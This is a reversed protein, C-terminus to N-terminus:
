VSPNATPREWSRPKQTASELMWALKKMQGCFAYKLTSLFATAMNPVLKRIMDGGLDMLGTVYIECANPRVQRFIGCISTNARVRGPLNRTEPFNVSHLIHYGVKEGNSLTLHEHGRRLHLRPEKSSGGVPVAMWKVVLSKFPDELSPETITSLVAAGSIDDVYSAKVRMIELTPNIVGFMMDELDGVATGFCLSPLDSSQGTIQPGVRSSGYNRESYVKTNERSKVLKWQDSDIRCHEASWERRVTDLAVRQVSECFRDKAM